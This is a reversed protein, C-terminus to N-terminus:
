DELIGIRRNRHKEAMPVDWCRTVTIQSPDDHEVLHTLFRKPCSGRLELCRDQLHGTQLQVIGYLLVIAARPRDIQNLHTNYCNCRVGLNVVYRFYMLRNLDSKLIRGEM